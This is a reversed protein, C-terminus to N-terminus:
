GRVLYQAMPGAREWAFLVQPILQGGCTDNAFSLPVLYIFFKQFIYENIILTDIVRRAGSPEELCTNDICGVCVLYNPLGRLISSCFDKIEKSHKVKYKM